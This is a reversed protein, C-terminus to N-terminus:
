NDQEAHREVLVSAVRDAKVKDIVKRIDTVLQEAESCDMTLRMRYDATELAIYDAGSQGQRYAVSLGGTNSLVTHAM